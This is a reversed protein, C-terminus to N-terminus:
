PKRWDKLVDGLVREAFAIIARALRLEEGCARNAETLFRIERDKKVIAEGRKESLERLCQIRDELNRIRVPDAPRGHMIVMAEANKRNIQAELWRALINPKKERNKM